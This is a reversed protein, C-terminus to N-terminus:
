AFDSSHASVHAFDTSATGTIRYEHRISVLISRHTVCFEKQFAFEGWLVQM